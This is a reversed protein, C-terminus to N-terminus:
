AEGRDLKENEEAAENFCAACLCLDTETEGLRVKTRCEFCKILVDQMWADKGAGMAALGVPVFNGDGLALFRQTKDKGVVITGRAFNKSM